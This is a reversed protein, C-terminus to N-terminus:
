QVGQVQLANLCHPSIVTQQHPIDDACAQVFNEDVLIHCSGLRKHAAGDRIQQHVAHVERQKHDGLYM